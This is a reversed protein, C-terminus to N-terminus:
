ISCGSLDADDDQSGKEFVVQTGDPSLRPRDIPGPDGAERTDKGQRDFWTLQFLANQIATRYVLVNSSASFAATEYKMAVREAVPTPDGSLELSSPDFKQAMLTSDRGSCCIGWQAM